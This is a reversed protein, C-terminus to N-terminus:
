YYHDTVTFQDEFISGEDNDHSIEQNYNELNKGDQNYDEDKILKIQFNQCGTKEIHGV